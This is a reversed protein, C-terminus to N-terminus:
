QRALPFVDFLHEVLAIFILTSRDMQSFHSCYQESKAWIHCQYISRHSEMVSEVVQAPAGAHDQYWCNEENMKMLCDSSRGGLMGTLDSGKPPKNYKRVIYGLRARGKKKKKLGLLLGEMLM